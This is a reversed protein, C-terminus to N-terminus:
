VPKGSIGSGNTEGSFVLMDGSFQHNSSAENGKLFTGKWTSMKMKPPPPCYARQVEEVLIDMQAIWVRENPLFFMDLRSFWRCIRFNQALLNVGLYTHPEGVQLESVDHYWEFDYEKATEKTDLFFFKWSALLHIALSKVFRPIM